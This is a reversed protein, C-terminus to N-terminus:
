LASTVVAAGGLVAVALVLHRLLHTPLWRRLPGGAWLGLGLAPALLAAFQLHGPELDSATAFSLLGITDSILFSAALTARMRAAAADAYLLALPPGALGAATGMLGSLLGCASQSWWRVPVQGGVALMLAAIVTIAGCMLRVRDQPTSALLRAAWWSGVVQMPVVFGLGPLDIQRRGEWTMTVVLPLALLLLGQPIGAPMLIALFPLTFLSFGFGVTRQLIAGVAIVPCAALVATV